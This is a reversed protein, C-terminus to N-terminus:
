ASRCDRRCRKAGAALLGVDTAPSHVQLRASPMIAPVSGAIGGFVGAIFGNAQSRRRARDERIAADPDEADKRRRGLALGLSISLDNPGVFLGDLGPTAAIADLNDLAEQTEIMAFVLTVQTPRQLYSAPM